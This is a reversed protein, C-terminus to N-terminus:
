ATAYNWVFNLLTTTKMMKNHAKLWILKQITLYDDGSISGCLIDLEELSENHELADIITQGIMGDIQNSCLRLVSLTTNTRLAEFIAECGEFGINSYSITLKDLTTNHSLADGIIVGHRPQLSVGYFELEAITPHTIAATVIADGALPSLTCAWISLSYMIRNQRLANIFRQTCNDDLDFHQKGISVKTYDEDQIELGQIVPLFDM